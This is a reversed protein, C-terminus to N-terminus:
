ELKKLRRELMVSRLKQQMMMMYLETNTGSTVVGLVAISAYAGGIESRLKAAESLSRQNEKFIKDRFEVHEAWMADWEPDNLAVLEADPIKYAEPEDNISMSPEAKYEDLSPLVYIDCINDSGVCINDSTDVLSLQGTTFDTGIDYNSADM